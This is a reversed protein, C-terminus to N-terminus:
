LAYVTILKDMNNCLSSMENPLLAKSNILSHIQRDATDGFKQASSDFSTGRDEDESDVEVTTKKKSVKSGGRSSSKETETTKKKKNNKAM